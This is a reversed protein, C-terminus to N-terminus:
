FCLIIFSSECDLRLMDACAIFQKFVVQSEIYRGTAATIAGKEKTSELGINELGKDVNFRYYRGSNGLTGKDRAFREATKETETAMKVLMKGIDIIKDDFPTLSPVGTGISVLCKVSSELSDDTFKWLDQAETWLEYIPNNVGSGAGDTFTEGSDIKLPDFFTTAASTARAAEWIKIEIDRSRTSNYSRFRVTDATQTNQACV